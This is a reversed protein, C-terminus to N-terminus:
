LNNGIYEVISFGASTNAKVNSDIDGNQNLAASGSGANFCWGVYSYPARNTAGNNDVTFGDTDFSTFGEYPATNTAEATTSNAELQKNVGRISDYLAHSEDPSSRRKIWVLDPQFGVGTIAHSADTGAWLVTNFNESAIPSSGEDDIQYWNSGDYFEVKNDDTNYRFDGANLNTSPREATTGSPLRVAGTTSTLELLETKTIKTIAM